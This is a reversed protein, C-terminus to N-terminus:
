ENASLNNVDIAFSVCLQLASTGDPDIIERALSLAIGTSAHTFAYYNYNTSFSKIRTRVSWDPYKDLWDLNSSLSNVCESLFLM